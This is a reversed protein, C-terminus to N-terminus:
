SQPLRHRSFRFFFNISKFVHFKKLPLVTLFCFLLLNVMLAFFFVFSNQRSVISLFLRAASLASFKRPILTLQRSRLAELTATMLFTVKNYKGKGKGKKKLQFLDDAAFLYDRPMGGDKTRSEM